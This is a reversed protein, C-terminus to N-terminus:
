GSSVGANAELTLPLRAQVKSAQRVMSVFNNYCVYGSKFGTQLEHDQKLSLM